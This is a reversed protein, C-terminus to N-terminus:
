DFDLLLEIMRLFPNGGSNSVAITAYYKTYTTTLAISPSFLQDDMTVVITHPVSTRAWFSVTYSKNVMIHPVTEVIQGLIMGTLTSHVTLDLADTHGYAVIEPISLNVKNTTTSCTEPNGSGTEPHVMWRDATTIDTSFNTLSFNRQRQWIEFNGNILMNKFGAGLVQWSTNTGDTTLVKGAQNAQPPLASAL